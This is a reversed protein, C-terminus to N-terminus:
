GHCAEELFKEMLADPPLYSYEGSTSMEGVALALASRLLQNEDLLLRIACEPHNTYCTAWHTAVHDTLWAKRIENSADDAM